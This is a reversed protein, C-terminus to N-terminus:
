KELTWKLIIREDGERDDKALVLIWQAEPCPAILNWDRLQNSNAWLLTLHRDKWVTSSSPSRPLLSNRSGSLYNYVPWSVNLAIVSLKWYPCKVPTFYFSHSYLVTLDLFAFLVTGYESLLLRRGCWAEKYSRLVRWPRASVSCVCWSTTVVSIFSQAHTYDEM